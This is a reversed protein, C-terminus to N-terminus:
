EFLWLSVYGWVCGKWSQCLVRESMLSLSGLTVCCHRWHRNLGFCPRCHVRRHRRRHHHHYHYYYYYYYAYYM